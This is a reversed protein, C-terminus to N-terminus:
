ELEADSRRSASEETGTREERRRERYERARRPLSLTLALARLLGHLVIFAALCLLIALNLSMEVRYPPLVLLLYGESFRAALSVGVALAFLALVWLLGKM